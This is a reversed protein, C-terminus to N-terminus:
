TITMDFRVPNKDVRCVIFCESELACSAVAVEELLSITWGSWHLTRSFGGSVPSTRSMIRPFDSPFRSVMICSTLAPSIHFRTSLALVLYRFLGHGTRLAPCREGGFLFPISPTKFVFGFCGKAPQRPNVDREFVSWGSTRNWGLSYNGYALKGAADERKRLESNTNDADALECDCSVCERLKGYRMRQDRLHSDVNLFSM